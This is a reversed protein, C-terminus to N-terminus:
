LKTEDEHMMFDTLTRRDIKGNSNLPLQNLRYYKTPIMYKPIQTILKRRIEREIEEGEYILTIESKERNYLVCGNHIGDLRLVANEIEGLEIRYGMHKIQNDKRGIFILEDFDNKYAL